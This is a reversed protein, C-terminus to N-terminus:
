GSEKVTTSSTPRGVYADIPEGAPFNLADAVNDVSTREILAVVALDVAHDAPAEADNPKPM